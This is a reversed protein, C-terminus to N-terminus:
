PEVEELLNTVTYKKWWNVMNNFQDFTVNELILFLIAINQHLNLCHLASKRIWEGYIFVTVCRWTLVEPHPFNQEKLCIGGTFLELLYTM